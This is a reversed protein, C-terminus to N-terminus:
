LAECNVTTRRVAIWGSGLGRVLLGQEVRGREGGVEMKASREAEGAAARLRVEAALAALM